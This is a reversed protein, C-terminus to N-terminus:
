VLVKDLGSNLSIGELRRYLDIAQSETMSALLDIATRRKDDDSMGLGDVVDAPRSLHM